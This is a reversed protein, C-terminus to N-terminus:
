KENIAKLFEKGYDKLKKLGVGKIDLFEQSNKPKKRAMEKLATDPFVVFAPADKKDAITKRLVRLKEYLSNNRPTPKIKRKKTKTTTKSKTTTKKKTTKSKKKTNLSKDKQEPIGKMRNIINNAMAHENIVILFEESYDNLKQEGVGNIKMFDKETEPFQTAMERLAVDGFVIFPAIGKADAIEKRLTKLEEFLEIDYSVSLKKTTSLKNNAAIGRMEPLNLCIDCSNCNPKHYEESFYNLIYKRRCLNQECYLVMENLKDQSAKKIIEDKVRSLFFEHKNLDGRSYFLVCDSQLGDRGARGIEQYYGEVSKSFTHHIVLRVDPKDIGMGFAITAVIINVKDKIFLEQNHKRIKASLGAHYALAKHGYSKLDKALSETDKRSFCYIIASENKYKELLTLIKGLTNEKRMVILNLNDRDFSSIFIRPNNLNLQKLIDDKVKLTATATLAIIPVNTFIRKLFKLNRYEKRFDHGWESICHAEDIAILSVNQKLLFNKFEPSALREPAIYLIKIEKNQIRTMIEEITKPTLTSNIYEANIGNAKLSDVQDQMLSILPSIVITLGEFVLAPIQYCLSKGAGTPMLVLTDKKTLINNIIELQTPRFNDYGFHKKLLLEM